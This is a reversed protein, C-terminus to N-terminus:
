MSKDGTPWIVAILQQVFNIFLLKLSKLWYLDFAAARRTVLVSRDSWMVGTSFNRWQSGTAYSVLDCCQQVFAQTATCWLIEDLVITPSLRPAPWPDLPGSGGAGTLSVRSISAFGLIFELLGRSHVISLCAEFIIRFYCFLKLRAHSQLLTHDNSESRKPLLLLLLLLWYM